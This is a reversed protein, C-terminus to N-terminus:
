AGRGMIGKPIELSKEYVIGIINYMIGLVGYVIGVLMM